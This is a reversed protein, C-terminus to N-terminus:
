PTGEGESWAVMDDVTVLATPMLLEGAPHSRTRYPQSQDGSPKSALGRRLVDNVVQKWPLQQERSIARLASAVDDELTLTTRVEHHQSRLM